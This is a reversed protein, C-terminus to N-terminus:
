VVGISMRGSRIACEVGLGRSKDSSIRCRRSSGVRFLKVAEEGPEVAEAFRGLNDFLRIRNNLCIAVARKSSSSGDSALERYIAMGVSRGHAGGSAISEHGRCLRGGPRRKGRGVALAAVEYRAQLTKQFYNSGSGM